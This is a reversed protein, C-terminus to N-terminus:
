AHPAPVTISEAGAAAILVPDHSALVVAGARGAYERLVGGLATRGAEDLHREPEDLLLLRSPRALM